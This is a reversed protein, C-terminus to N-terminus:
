KELDFFWRASALDEDFSLEFLRFSYLGFLQGCRSSHAFGFTRSVGFRSSMKNSELVVDCMVGQSYRTSFLLIHSTGILKPFSEVTRALLNQIRFTFHLVDSPSIETLRESKPCVRIEWCKKLDRISEQM